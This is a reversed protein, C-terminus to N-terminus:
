LTTRALKRRAREKVADISLMEIQSTKMTTM